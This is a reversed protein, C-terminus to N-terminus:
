CSADTYSLCSLHYWGCAHYGRALMVALVQLWAKGEVRLVVEKAGLSVSSASLEWLLCIQWVGPALAEAPM